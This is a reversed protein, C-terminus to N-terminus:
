PVHQELFVLKRDELLRLRTGRGVVLDQLLEGRHSVLHGRNSISYALQRLELGGIHVRQRSEDVGLGPADVRAEILGPGGVPRSEDESGFRCFMGTRVGRPSAMAAGKTAGGPAM